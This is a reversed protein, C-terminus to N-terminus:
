SQFHKLASCLNSIRYGIIRFTNCCLIYDGKISAFMRQRM